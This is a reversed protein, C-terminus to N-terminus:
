IKRSKMPNESVGNSKFVGQLYLLGVFVAICFRMKKCFFCLWKMKPM